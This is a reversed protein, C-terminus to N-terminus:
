TGIFLTEFGLYETTDIREFREFLKSLDEEKIGIGTDEVEFYFKADEEEIAGDM